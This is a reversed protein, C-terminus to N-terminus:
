NADRAFGECHGALVEANATHRVPGEQGARIALWEEWRRVDVAIEGRDPLAAQIDYPGIVDWWKIDQFGSFCGAQSQEDAQFVTVPAEQLGTPAAPPGNAVGPASSDILREFGAAVVSSGDKTDRDAILDRGVDDSYVANRSDLVLEALEDMLKV